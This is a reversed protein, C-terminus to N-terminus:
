VRAEHTRVGGPPGPAPPQTGRQRHGHEPTELRGGRYRATEANRWQMAIREPTKPRNLRTSLAFHPLYGAAVSAAEMQSTQATSPPAHALRPVLTPTFIFIYFTLLMNAAM